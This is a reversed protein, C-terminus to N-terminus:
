HVHLSLITRMKSTNKFRNNKLFPIFGVFFRWPKGYGPIRGLLKQTPTKRDRLIGAGSAIVLRPGIGIRGAHPSKGGDRLRLRVTELYKASKPLEAM